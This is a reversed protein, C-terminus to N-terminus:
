NKLKELRKKEIEIIKQMDWIDKKYIKIEEELSKTINEIELKTLDFYSIKGKKVEQKLEEISKNM